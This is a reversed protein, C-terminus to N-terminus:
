IVTMNEQKIIEKFYALKCKKNIQRLKTYLGLTMYHLNPKDSYEQIIKKTIPTAFGFDIIYWEGNKRMFNPPNPDKHFIKCKDLKKFLEVISKQQNETLEYGQQVFCEFLNTNLKEMVIYRGYEDYEIVKPSIGKKSAKTLLEAEKKIDIPKKYSKKDNAKYEEYNKFLKMAFQEHSKHNMVLFTRGERGERGLQRIFIYKEYKKLAHYNDKIIKIIRKKSASSLDTNLKLSKYVQILQEKTLKHLTDLNLM